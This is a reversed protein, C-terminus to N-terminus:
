IIRSPNKSLQHVLNQMEGTEHWCVWICPRLWSKKNPLTLRRTPNWLRPAFCRSTRAALTPRGPTWPPSGLSKVQSNPPGFAIKAISFVLLYTAILICDIYMKASFYSFEFWIFLIKINQYFETFLKCYSFKFM